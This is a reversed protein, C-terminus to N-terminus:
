RTWATDAASTRLCLCLCLCLCVCAQLPSYVRFRIRVGYVRARLRVRAPLATDRTAARRVCCDVCQRSEVFMVGCVAVCALICRPSMPSVRVCVLRSAGCSAAWRNASSESLSRDMHSIVCWLMCVRTGGPSGLVHDAVCPLSFMDAAKQIHASNRVQGLKSAGGLLTDTNVTSLNGAVKNMSGLLGGVSGSGDEQGDVMGSVGGDTEPEAADVAPAAAQIPELSATDFADQDLEVFDSGGAAQMDAMAGLDGAISWGGGDRVSADWTDAAFALSPDEAAPEADESGSASGAGDSGVTVLGSVVDTAGAIEEKM